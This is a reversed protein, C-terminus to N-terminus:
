SKAKKVNANLQSAPTYAYQWGVKGGLGDIFDQLGKHDGGSIKYVTMGGSQKLPHGSKLMALDLDPSNTNFLILENNNAKQIYVTHAFDGGENAHKFNLFGSETIEAPNFTTKIGDPKIGMLELYRTSYNTGGDRGTAAKVTDYVEPSLTKEAQGVRMSAEYCILGQNDPNSHLKEWNLQLERSSLARPQGSPILPKDYLEVVESDFINNKKRWENDHEFVNFELQNRDTGHTKYPVDLKKDRVHKDLGAHMFDSSEFKALGYNPDNFWFVKKGDEIKVGAAMAHGPADIMISKPPTLGDLKKVMGEVSLLESTKGAYFATKTQTRQQLKNLNEIFRRCAPDSPFAAATYLNKIFTIDKGEEMATAMLRSFAACQGESLQSTMGIYSSQPIPFVTGFRPEINDTFRAAGRRGFEYAYEDYKRVIIGVQEATFDGNNVLSMFDAPKKAKSLGPVNNADGIRYGDDFDTKGRHANVAKNWQKIVDDSITRGSSSSSATAWKKFDDVEIRPSPLFDKLPLGRPKLTVPDLAYWHGNWTVAAVEAIEGNIKATGIAGADFNSFIKKIVDYKDAGSMAWEIFKRAGLSALQKGGTGLTKLLAGAGDLPNLSSVVARTLIKAGRTLHRFASAGTNLAKAGKAAAGLAVFFGLADLALDTIGAGINGKSFNDIASYLPVLNLFFEGVKKNITEETEFTTMGQAMKKYSQVDVLKLKAGAIYRTRESFYSKPPHVANTQDLSKETHGDPPSVPALLEFSDGLKMGKPIPARKSPVPGIKFDNMDDRKLITNKQWDIEYTQTKGDLTSRLFIKSENRPLNTLVGTTHPRYVTFQQAVTLQGYEIMKRDAIPLSAILHKTQAAIAAEYSDVYASFEREFEAKLDSVLSRETSLGARIAPLSIKKNSSRWQSDSPGLRNTLFLDLVSYPGPFDYKSSDRTICKELLEERSLHPLLSLLKEMVKNHFEPMQTAFATSAASLETVQLKFARHVDEMESDTYADDPKVAIIGQAVGWDKLADNQARHEVLREESTLPIEDAQSMVQAFTMKSTSGPAQAELRAVATTFSVWTHSGFTVQEPVDKILLHPAKRSLLVAVALAATQPTAKKMKVLHDAMANRIFSASKGSLEADAFNFGAATTRASTPSFRHLDQELSLSLAALMWEQLSTPSALEGLKAEASAGMGRAQTTKLIDALLSHPDDNVNALNRTWHALLNDDPEDKLVHRIIAHLQRQDEISLLTPSSLAGGLDGLTPKIPPARRLAKAVMMLEDYNTPITIGEDVMYQHLSVADKPGLNHERAYSSEPDVPFVIEKFIKLQADTFPASRQVDSSFANASNSATELKAVLSGVLQASLASRNNLDGLQSKQVNLDEKFPSHTEAYTFPTQLLGEAYATISATQEAQPLSDNIPIPKGHFGAIESMSATTETGVSIFGGLPALTKAASMLVERGAFDKLDVTGFGFAGPIILTGNNVDIMTRKSLVINKEAAWRKMEASQLINHLHTRWKGYTSTAPINEVTVKRPDQNSSIHKKVTQAFLTALESDANAAPIDDTLPATSTIPPHTLAIPAPPAVTIDGSPPLGVSPSQPAAFAITTM